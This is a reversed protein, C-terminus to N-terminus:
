GAKATADDVVYFKTPPVDNDLITGVGQSNTIVGGVPNALNVVFTETAEVISNDITQVLVTQSTQGPAFTLTGSTAKYDSGSTASGNATNYNVTLRGSRRAHQRSDNQGGFAFGRRRDVCPTQLRKECSRDPQPRHAGGLFPGCARATSSPVNWAGNPVCDLDYGPMGALDVENV